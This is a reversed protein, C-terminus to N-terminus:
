RVQGVYLIEDPNDGLTLVVGVDNSNFRNRMITPLVLGRSSVPGSLSNALRIQRRREVGKHRDM